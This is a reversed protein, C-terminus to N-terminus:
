SLDHPSWNVMHLVPQLNEGADKESTADWCWLQIKTASLEEKLIMLFSFRVLNRSLKVCGFPASKDGGRVKGKHKMMQSFM